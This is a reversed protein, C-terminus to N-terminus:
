GVHKRIQRVLALIAAVGVVLGAAAAAGAVVGSWDMKLEAQGRPVLPPDSALYPYLQDGAPTPVGVVQAYNRLEDALLLIEDKAASAHGVLATEMEEALLLQKLTRVVLPEPMIMFRKFYGPTIPVGGAQLVALAERTARTALLLLDPTAAFRKRDIGAAYLGAAIGPMLIAAHTKLWADMDTHIEVQYGEMSSLLRAALRTRLRTVGDIEGIPISVKKLASGALVRVTDGAFYGASSPFGVLVREAGLADVFEQPGAFNNLLFLVNPSHENAALVPLIARAHSKRMIVLIFDYPDDPKLESLIRPRAVTRVGTKVDELVIGNKYLSELRAGRALLAVEHGAQHLRAAFLSGLPGAGYVLVRM